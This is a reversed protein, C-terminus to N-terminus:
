AARRKPHLLFASVIWLLLLGALHAGTLLVWPWRALRDGWLIPLHASSLFFGTCALVGAARAWPAGQEAARWITVMLVPWVFLMGALTHVWTIKLLMLLALVLFGLELPVRAADLPPALRARASRVVIWVTAAAVGLSLALSLIRPAAPAHAPVASVAGPVFLRLVYADLSQNHAWGNPTGLPALVAHRWWDAWIGAGFHITAAACVAALVGLAVGAARRPGRWWVYAVLTVPVLKVVAAVALALGAGVGRREMLAAAATVLCLFLLIGVSGSRIDNHVSTSNLAAPVFAAAVVWLLRPDEVGLRLALGRVLRLTMVLATFLAVTGLLMWAQRAREYSLHALPQMGWAFPPPYLFPYQDHEFGLAHGAAALVDPDYPSRQERALQGALYYSAFDTRAPLLRIQVGTTAVVFEFSALVVIAACLRRLWRLAPV